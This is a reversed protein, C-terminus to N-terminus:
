SLCKMPEATHSAVFTFTEWISPRLRNCCLEGNPEACLFLGAARLHFLNKELRIVEFCNGLLKTQGVPQRRIHLGSDYLCLEVECNALQVFFTLRDNSLRLNLPKLATAHSSASNKDIHICRDLEPSYFLTTNHSSQISVSVRPKDEGFFDHFFDLFLDAANNPMSPRSPTNNPNGYHKRRYQFPLNIVSRKIDGTPLSPDIPLNHVFSYNPWALCTLAGGRQLIRRSLGIEGHRIVDIRKEEHEGPFNKIFERFDGVRGFFAYTQVHPSASEVPLGPHGSLNITSGCLQVDPFKHYQEIYKSYWGNGLPGYASRNIFLVYDEDKATKCIMRLCHAFSSFDRGLNSKFAVEQISVSTSSLAVKLADHLGADIKTREAVTSVAVYVSLHSVGSAYTGMNSFHLEDLEYTARENATAYALFYSVM